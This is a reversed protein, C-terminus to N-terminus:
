KLVEVCLCRVSCPKLNVLCTIVWSGCIVVHMIRTIIMEGKDIKLLRVWNRCMGFEMINPATVEKDFKLNMYKLLFLKM